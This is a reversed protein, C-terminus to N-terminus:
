IQIVYKDASSYAEFTLFKYWGLFMYRYDHEQLKTLPFGLLTNSYKPIMILFNTDTSAIGVNTLMAEFETESQTTVNHNFEEVLTWYVQARYCTELLRYNAAQYGFAAVHDVNPFFKDFNLYIEDIMSNFGLSLTDLSNFVVDSVSNNYTLIVTSLSLCTLSTPIYSIDISTNPLDLFLFQLQTMEQLIESIHGDSIIVDFLNLYELNKPISNKTISCTALSLIEYSGKVNQLIENCNPVYVTLEKEGTSSNYNVNIFKFGNVNYKINVGLNSINKMDWPDNEMLDFFLVSQVYRKEQYSELREEDVVQNLCFERLNPLYVRNFQGTLTVNNLYIEAISNSIQKITASFETANVIANEINIVSIPTPLNDLQKYLVLLEPISNQNGTFTITGNAVVGSLKNESITSETLSPRDEVNEM